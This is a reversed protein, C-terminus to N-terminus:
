PHHPPDRLEEVDLALGDLLLELRLGHARQTQILALAYQDLDLVLGLREAAKRGAGPAQEGFGQGVELVLPRGQQAEEFVPAHRNM